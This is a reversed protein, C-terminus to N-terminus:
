IIKEVINKMWKNNKILHQIWKKRRKVSKARISWKEKIKWYVEENTVNQEFFTSCRTEFAEVKREDSKM